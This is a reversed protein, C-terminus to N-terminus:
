RDVLEFTGDRFYVEEQEQGYVLPWAIWDCNAGNSPRMEGPLFRRILMFRWNIGVKANRLRIVDGYRFDGDM